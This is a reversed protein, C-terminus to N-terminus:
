EKIFKVSKGDLTIFYIGKSLDSIDVLLPNTETVSYTRLLKGMGDYLLINATEKNHHITLHTQAPNPSISFTIENKDDISTVRVDVEYALTLEPFQANLMKCRLLKDAHEETFTFIGDTNTPQTITQETGDTIDLWEYSTIYGNINYESSLDVTDTYAKTGGIITDQPSYFFYFDVLSSPPPIYTSFKLQNGQCFLETLVINESLDLETLNNDYCSLIELKTNKSVDLKTLNNEGCFLRLLETNKSIDLETFDNGTCSLSFLEINKSVDLETLNNDSCSIIQLETNKSIDLEMLNNQWCVLTLLKTHESIDLETLNNSACSLFFLETNKSFDLETLNNGSCNLTILEINKTIDLETLNNYFCSLNKLKTNNSVDIETLENNPCYLYELVPSSLKLKGELGAYLSAGDCSFSDIRLMSSETEIWKAGGIFVIWDENDYWSLTDNVTLGLKDHNTGQRMFVRLDEKCDEHYIQATATNTAFISTALIAFIGILLIKRYM